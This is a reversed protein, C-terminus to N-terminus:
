YFFSSRFTVFFHLVILLLFTVGYCAISWWRSNSLKGFLFGTGWAVFAHVTVLTAFGTLYSLASGSVAVSSPSMDRVLAIIQRVFLDYFDPLPGVLFEHWLPTILPLSALTGLLIVLDFCFVLLMTRTSRSLTEWRALLNM